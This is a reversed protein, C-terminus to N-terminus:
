AIALISRGRRYLQLPRASGVGAVLEAPREADWIVLDAQAGPLLSGRDHGLGLARAAQRTVGLLVETVTLGFLVCAMNMALRLSLLPASGPNYDSAVALPVGHRRLLEMPPLRTERLFYFAVPLLVAVSGADAMARAGAEDLHELHDASLAGHAAALAAGGSNSLQEAHLRVPLGLTRARAFLRDVQAPSFAIRECFADVSDALQGTAAAPLIEDIVFDVYDDARGAYEPPVAHAALLTTHVSVPLREGIRRAVRLLKLENELDLGYGSKVELTTVGEALLRAARDCALELLADESAARTARVTSMIGGGAQAVQQYTAGALRLEFEQSREGAFVLHTHCDILGPTVLAGRADVVELSSPLPPLERAPGIWAIRDGAMAVAADRMMGCGDPGNSCTAVSAATILKTWGQEQGMPVADEAANRSEPNIM